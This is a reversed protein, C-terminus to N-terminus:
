VLMCMACGEFRRVSAFFISDSKNVEDVQFIGGKWSERVHDCVVVFGIPFLGLVMKGQDNM